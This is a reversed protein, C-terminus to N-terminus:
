WCGRRMLSRQSLWCSFYRIRGQRTCMRGRRGRSGVRSGVNLCRLAIMLLGYLMSVWGRLSFVPISIRGSLWRGLIIEIWSCTLCSRTIFRSSPVTCLSITQNMKKKFSGWSNSLLILLALFSVMSSNTVWSAEKREMAVSLTRGETNTTTGTLVLCLSHKAQAQRVMRSYPQISARVSM